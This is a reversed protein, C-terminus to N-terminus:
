RCKGPGWLFSETESRVVLRCREFIGGPQYELCRFCGMFALIKYKRDVGFMNSGDYRLSGFFTYRNNYTYSGTMYVSLFRDETFSKSYQKFEANDIQTSGEPFVLPKTTLSNPDYGFGRTMLDTVKSRRLEIGAMYNVAHVEGFVQNFEGQLKWHYQNMDKTSNQIIGGDPLFYVVMTGEQKKAINVFM